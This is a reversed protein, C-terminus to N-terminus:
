VDVTALYVRNLKFPGTNKYLEFKMISYFAFASLYLPTSYIDLMVNTQKHLQYLYQKTNDSFPWKNDQIM